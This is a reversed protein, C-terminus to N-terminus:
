FRAKWKKVWALSRGTAQALTPNSWDPHQRWLTLLLSRDALYQAEM